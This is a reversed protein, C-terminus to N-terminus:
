RPVNVLQISDVHMNDNNSKIPSVVILYPYVGPPPASPATDVDVLIGTGPFPYLDSMPITQNDIETFTWVNSNYDIEGNGWFFVLYYEHADPHKSIGLAVSDFRITGSGISGYYYEMEYYSLDFNTHSTGIVEIPTNGLDIVTYSGQPISHESGDPTGIPIIDSPVLTWTPDPTSPFGTPTATPSPTNTSTSTATSTPTRSSTVTRTSTSTATATNTPAPTGTSAATPVNSPTQTPASGTAASATPPQQATQTPSVPTPSISATGAIVFFPPFSVDQPTLYNDEWSPPTLIQPALPRFLFVPQAFFPEPNLNSQMGASVSWNPLIRIALQGAILMLLIGLPVIFILLSWDRRRHENKSM